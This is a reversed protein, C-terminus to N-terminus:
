FSNPNFKHKVAIQRRVEELASAEPEMMRLWEATTLKGKYRAYLAIRKEHWAQKAPSQNLEEYAADQRAQMNAAIEEKIQRQDKGSNRAACTRGYYLIGGDDLKMAVTAKLDTRGCCECTDVEDTVYLAKM